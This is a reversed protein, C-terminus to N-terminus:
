HPTLEGAAPLLPRGDGDRKGIIRPRAGDPRDYLVDRLQSEILPRKEEIVLIEDLGAAFDQARVPELPWVLAVKYLRLGLDACRAEDLGLDLLAQRLDSWAKGAAAIGRRAGAPNVTVRD